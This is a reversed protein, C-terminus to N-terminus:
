LSLSLNLSGCKDSLLKFPAPQRMLLTMRSSQVNCAAITKFMIKLDNGVTQQENACARVLGCAVVRQLDILLQAGFGTKNNFINTDAPQLAPAGPAM